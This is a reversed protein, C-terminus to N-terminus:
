VRLGVKRRPKSNPAEATSCIGSRPEFPWTIRSVTPPRRGTHGVAVTVASAPLARFLDEDTRDDGFIVVATPTETPESVHRGVAAKSVGRLRRRGGEAKPVEFPQNSLADGLLM